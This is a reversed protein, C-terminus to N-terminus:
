FFFNLAFFVISKKDNKESIRVFLSFGLIYLYKCKRVDNISYQKIEM